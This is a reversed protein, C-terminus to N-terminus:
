AYLPIYKTAGNVTVELWSDVSGPTSPANGTEGVLDVNAVQISGNAADILISSDDAYVSGILNGDVFGNVNLDGPVTVVRGSSIELANQLNGTTNTVQFEIKSPVVGTSVNGDVITKINATNVFNSGDHGYFELDFIQDNNQLTIETEPVGRSRRLALTYGGDAGNNYSDFNFETGRTFVEGDLYIEPGPFISLGRTINGTNDAVSFDLRGPIIGSSVTGSARAVIQALAVDNTGDYGFWNIGYIRDGDQVTSKADVSGRSRALKLIGSGDPGTTNTSYSLSISERNLDNSVTISESSVSTCIINEADINGTSTDVIVIDSFPNVVDAYVEKNSANVLVTSDDAIVSGQVDGQVLGTIVGTATIDRGLIDKTTANVLIGSDEAVLSGTLTGYINNAHLNQWAFSSSGLNYLSDASPTLNSSIVGSVAISDSSDNGLSINGTASITGDININGVGTVNNGNLDLNGGLQPTTDSVIEAIGSGSASIEVGGTTVGDGVYLKKTDTTYIPEGADPTITLREADLGRRLRLPM